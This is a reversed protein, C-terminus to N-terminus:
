GFQIGLFSDTNFALPTRLGSNRAYTIDINNINLGQNLEYTEIEQILGLSALMADSNHNEEIYATLEELPMGQAMKEAIDRPVGELQMITTVKAQFSASAQGPATPNLGNERDFQTSAIQEKMSPRHQTQSRHIDNQSKYITSKYNYKIQLQEVTTHRTHVRLNEEKNLNLDSVIEDVSRSDIDGALEKLIEASSRGKYDEPDKDFVDLLTEKDVLIFRAVESLETKEDKTAQETLYVKLRDSMEGTKMMEALDAELEKAKKKDKPNSSQSLREIDSSARKAVREIDEPTLRKFNEEREALEADRERLAEIVEPPQGTDEAHRIEKSNQERQTSTSENGKKLITELGIKIQEDRENATMRTASAQSITNAKSTEDEFVVDLDDVETNFTENLEKYRNFDQTLLDKNIQGNESTYKKKINEESQLKLSLEHYELFREDFTYSISSNNFIDLKGESQTYLHDYTWASQLFSLTKVQEPDAIAEPQTEGASAILDGDRVGLGHNPMDSVAVTAIKPKISLNNWADNAELMGTLGSADDYLKNFNEIYKQDETSLKDKETNNLIALEQDLTGNSKAAALRERAEIIDPSYVFTEGTEDLVKDVIREDIQEPRELSLFSLDVDTRFLSAATAKTNGLHFPSDKSSPSSSSSFVDEPVIPTRTDLSSPTFTDSSSTTPNNEKKAKAALFEDAIDIKTPPTDTDVNDLEPPKIEEEKETQPELDLSDTSALIDSDDAPFSWDTDSSTSGSGSFLNFELELKTKFPFKM